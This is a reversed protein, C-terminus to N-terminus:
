ERLEYFIMVIVGSQYFCNFENLKLDFHLYKGYKGNVETNCGFVLSLGDHDLLVHLRELSPVLGLFQTQVQTRRELIQHQRLIQVENEVGM